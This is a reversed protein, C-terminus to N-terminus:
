GKEFWDVDVKERAEVPWGVLSSLREALDAYTPPFLAKRFVLVGYARKRDGSPPLAEIQGPSLWRVIFIPLFGLKSITLIKGFLSPYALGNKIEVAFVGEETRLAMDFDGGKLSWEKWKEKSLRGEEVRRWELKATEPGRELGEEVWGMKREILKKPVGRGVEEVSEPFIEWGRAGAVERLALWFAEEAYRGAESLAAVGLAVLERKERAKHELDRRNERWDDPLAYFDGPILEEKDKKKRGPLGFKKVAGEEELQKLATWTIDHAYKSELRYRLERSYAVKLKELKGLIEEKAREVYDKKELAVL